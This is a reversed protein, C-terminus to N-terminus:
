GEHSRVLLRRARKLAKVVESKGGLGRIKQILEDM